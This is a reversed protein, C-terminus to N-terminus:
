SWFLLTKNKLYFINMTFFIMNYFRMGFFYLNIAFIKIRLYLLYFAEWLVLPIVYTLLKWENLCFNCFAQKFFFWFNERFHLLSLNYFRFCPKESSSTKVNKTWEMGNLAKASPIIPVFFDPCQNWQYWLSEMPVLTFLRFFHLNLSNSLQLLPFCFSCFVWKSKLLIWKKYFM